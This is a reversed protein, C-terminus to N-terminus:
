ELSEPKESFLLYLLLFYSIKNIIHISYSELFFELKSGLCTTNKSPHRPLKRM